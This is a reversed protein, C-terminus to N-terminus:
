SGAWKDLHLPMHFIYMNKSQHVIQNFYKTHRWFGITIKTAYKM